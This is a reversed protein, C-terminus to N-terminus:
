NNLNEEIIKKVTEYLLARSTVMCDPTYHSTMKKDYTNLWIVHWNAKKAGVVDNEYSDGIYYTMEKSLGMKEEVLEFVQSNPKAVGVEQSVFIDDKNVWELIGLQHVKQWQHATPGNTIIGLLVNQRKCYMLLNKMHSDLIIQKQEKAYDYQIALAQEDSIIYNYDHLARQIRYIHMTEMSIEGSQSAEFMEDSYHRYALYLEKLYAIPFEIHKALAKQFPVLQDYLTDDVDLIIALQPTTM